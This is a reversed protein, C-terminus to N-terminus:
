PRRLCPASRRFTHGLGLLALAALAASGPEPVSNDAAHGIFEVSMSGFIGAAPMQLPAFCTDKTPTTDADFCTAVTTVRVEDIVWGALDPLDANEELVLQGVSFPLWPGNNHSADAEIRAYVLQTWPDTVGNTYLAVVEDFVTGSTLSVVVPQGVTAPTLVQSVGRMEVGIRLSSPDVLFPTPNWVELSLASTYSSLVSAPVATCAATLALAAALTKM